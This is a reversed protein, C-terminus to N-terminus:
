LPEKLITSVVSKVPVGLNQSIESLKSRGKPTLVLRGIFGNIEVTSISDKCFFQNFKNRIKKLNPSGKIAFEVVYEKKTKSELISKILENINTNPYQKRAQAIARIDSTDIKSKSFYEAVKVQDDKELKSLHAAADVSDIHRNKFLLKVPPFLDNVVKFQRLMKASIGVRDAVITINGLSKEAISIWDAIEVLSFPRKKTFTSSILAALATDVLKEDVNAKSSM